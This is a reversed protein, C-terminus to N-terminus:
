AKVKVYQNMTLDEVKQTGNSDASYDLPGKEGEEWITM